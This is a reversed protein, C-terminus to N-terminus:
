RYIELAKTLETDFELDYLPNPKYRNLEQKFFYAAVKGSLPSGKEKLFEGLAKLNQENYAPHTKSFNEFLHNNFANALNARDVEPVDNAKVAIDPMIGKKHIMAGSPTYYKRITLTFGSKDPDIDNVRQVLAKGFTKQGVLQARNNDRLAGSLIESASASGGNVLVLLRGNYIPSIIAKIVEPQIGSSPRARMSLIESDKDLFLNAIKVAADVDGGPNDRLDLIVSGIKKANFYRLAKETDVATESFFHTIRLYGISDNENMVGYKVSAMRIPERKITFDIEGPLGDRRIVIKVPSGAAGKILKMIESIPKGKAPVNEVMTVVDGAKIGAKKAPSDEIPSVVVIEGDKVTVEVGIGIFKGTVEERFDAYETEDLFRTYPDDLSQLMGRIAGYFLVKPSTEEVYDTRVMQYVSHFFDLYKFAGDDASKATFGMGLFFGFVFVLVCVHLRVSLLFKRM